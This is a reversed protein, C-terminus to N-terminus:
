ARVLRDAEPIADEFSGDRFSQEIGEVLSERVKKERDGKELMVCVRADVVSCVVGETPCFASDFINRIIPPHDDTYFALRRRRERSSEALHATRRTRQEYKHQEPKDSPADRIFGLDVVALGSRVPKASLTRRPNKAHKRLQTATANLANITVARTATLLGSKYTNGVENEIDESSFGDTNEVGYQFNVCVLDSPTPQPTEVFESPQPSPVESAKATPTSTPSGSPSNTPFRTPELTGIEERIADGVTRCITILNDEIFPSEDPDLDIGADGGVCCFPAKSVFSCFCSGYVFTSILSFPLDVYSDADVAGRSRTSIFGVYEDETLKLDGTTDSRYLDDVCDQYQSYARSLIFSEFTRETADHDKREHRSRKICEAPDSLLLFVLLLFMRGRRGPRVMTM